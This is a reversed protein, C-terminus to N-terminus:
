LDVDLMGPVSHCLMFGFPKLLQIGVAKEAATWMVEKKPQSQQSASVKKMLCGM